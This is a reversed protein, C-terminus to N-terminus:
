SSVRSYLMEYNLTKQRSRALLFIIIILVLYYIIFLLWSFNIAVSAFPLSAFTEIIKIEYGLLLWVLWSFIKALPMFLFGSLVSLFGSAMIIPVLPLILMNSLPAILSLNKFSILLLPLVFIQASVTSILAEKLNLINTINKLKNELIPFLYFLGCTALFSLQFGLDFKLIMPNLFVMVVGALVLANTPNYLRGEYRAILILIGMVAARVISASAGVMIVFLCIGITALWFTYPRSIMLASLISMLLFAVITINYGSLVIIHSTGTRKFNDIFDDSFGNKEGLLLGSLFSAHPEAFIANLKEQFKNKVFYLFDYLASGKNKALINIKPYYIISYIQDKALYNQYDFESFNEPTKLRGFMEIEDGYKYEPYRPVITLIKGRKNDIQGLVIMKLKDGDIEPREIIKASILADTRDNYQRIESINKENFTQFRFIGAVFFLLCFALIVVKWNKKWFIGILM